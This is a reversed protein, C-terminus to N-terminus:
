LWLAGGQPEQGMSSPPSSSLPALRLRQLLFVSLGEQVSPSFVEEPATVDIRSSFWQALPVESCGAEGKKKRCITATKPCCPAASFSLTSDQSCDHLSCM